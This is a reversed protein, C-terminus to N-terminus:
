KISAPREKRSALALAGGPILPIAAFTYVVFITDVFPYYLPRIGPHNMINIGLGGIASLLMLTGGLTPRYLAIVGGAIAMAMLSCLFGWALFQEPFVRIGYEVGPVGIIGGLIGLGMVHVSCAPQKERTTLAIIGGAILVPFAYFIPLYLLALGPFVHAAILGGIGTALMVLLRM